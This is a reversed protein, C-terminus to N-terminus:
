ASAEANWKLRLERTKRLVDETNQNMRTIISDEDGRYMMAEEYTLNLDVVIGESYSIVKFLDTTEM